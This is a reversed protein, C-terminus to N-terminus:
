PTQWPRGLQPGFQELLRIHALLEDQVDEPLARFEADFDDHLDVQWAVIKIHMWICINDFVNKGVKGSLKM